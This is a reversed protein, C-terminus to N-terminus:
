SRQSSETTTGNCSHKFGWESALVVLIRFCDCVVCVCVRPIRPASGQLTESRIQLLAGTVPVPSQPRCLRQSRESGRKIRRERLEGDRPCQLARIDGRSKETARTQRLNVLIEASQVNQWPEVVCEHAFYVFHKAAQAMYTAERSEEPETVIEM